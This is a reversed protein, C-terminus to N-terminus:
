WAVANLQEQTTALAIESILNEYRQQQAKVHASFAKGVAQIQAKTHVRRAWAGSSDACWFKYEDGASPLLSEAILGTMNAQDTATTPYSHVAGLANHTIGAVIAAGAAKKISALRAARQGNLNVILRRSLEPAVLRLQDALTDTLEVPQFGAVPSVPLVMGADVHFYRQGDLDGIHTITADGPWEPYAFTSLQDLPAKYFVTM